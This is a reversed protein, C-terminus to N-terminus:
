NKFKIKINIKLKYVVKRQYRAVQHLSKYMLRFMSCYFRAIYFFSNNQIVAATSVETYRWWLPIDWAFILVTKKLSKELAGVAEMTLATGLIVCILFEQMMGISVAHAHCEM